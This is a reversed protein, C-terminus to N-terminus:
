GSSQSVKAPHARVGVELAVLAGFRAGLAHPSGIAGQVIKSPHGLLVNFSVARCCVLALSVGPLRPMRDILFCPQLEGGVPGRESLM